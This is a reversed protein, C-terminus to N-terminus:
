GPTNPMDALFSFLYFSIWLFLFERVVLISRSALLYLQMQLRQVLIVLLFITTGQYNYFQMLPIFGLSITVLLLIWSSCYFLQLEFYGSTDERQSNAYAWNVKLALGYSCIM